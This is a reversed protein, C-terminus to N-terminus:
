GPRNKITRVIGVGPSNTPRARTGDGETKRRLRIIAASVDIKLIKRRNKTDMASTLLQAFGAQVNRAVVVHTIREPYDGEGQLQSYRKFLDDCGQTAELVGPPTEFDFVLAIPKQQHVIIRMMGGLNS